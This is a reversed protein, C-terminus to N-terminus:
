EYGQHTGWIGDWRIFGLIHFIEGTSGFELFQANELVVRLFVENRDKNEGTYPELDAYKAERIIDSTKKRDV